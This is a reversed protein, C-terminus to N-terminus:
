SSNDRFSRVAFKASVNVPDMRVCAWSFNQLFPAHAYGPVAGIKPTGGITEPIPLAVFKVNRLYEYPGHSCFGKLLKASHPAHAFGPVGWIKPTGGIIEPVPLAIFKLNQVCMRPISRFLLGNCIEPFTAPHTTLVRLKEPCGYIPRMARDDKRYSLQRTIIFPWWSSQRDCQAVNDSRLSVYTHKFGAEYQVDMKQPYIPFFEPRKDYSADQTSYEIFVCLVFSLVILQKMTSSM